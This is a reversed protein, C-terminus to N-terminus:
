RGRAFADSTKEADASRYNSSLHSGKRIAKKIRQSCGSCQLSCQQARILTSSALLSTTTDLIIAIYLQRRRMLAMTVRALNLRAEIADETKKKFTKSKKDVYIARAQEPAGRFTKLNQIKILHLVCCM